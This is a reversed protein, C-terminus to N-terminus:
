EALGKMFVIWHTGASKPMKNGFLPKQGALSVVEGLRINTEAWKFILVGAPRLIRFCERFGATIDERWNDQSLTGYVQAMRSNRGCRNELIHPPDFVVLSFSEDDFPLSKFNALVDPDIVVRRLGDPQNKDKTMVVECRQDLFLVREDYKDFWFKKSGCCVDIVEQCNM